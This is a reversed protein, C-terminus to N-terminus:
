AGHHHHQVTARLACGIERRAGLHVGQSAVKPSDHEIGLLGLVGVCLFAPIPELRSMLLASPALVTSSAARACDIM